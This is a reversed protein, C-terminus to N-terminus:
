SNFSKQNFLLYRCLLMQFCEIFQCQGLLHIFVRPNTLNGISWPFSCNSQLLDLCDVFTLASGLTSYCLYSRNIKHELYFESLNLWDIRAILNWLFHLSYIRFEKKFFTYAHTLYLAYTHHLGLYEEAIWVM